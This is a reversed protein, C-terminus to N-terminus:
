LAVQGPVLAAAVLELETSHSIKRRVRRSAGIIARISRQSNANWMEEMEEARDAIWLEQIRIWFYDILGV